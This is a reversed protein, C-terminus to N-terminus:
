PRLLEATDRAAKKVDPMDFYKDFLNLFLDYAVGDIDMGYPNTYHPKMQQVADYLGAVQDGENANPDFLDPYMDSLIKWAQDLSMGDSSVLNVSGFLKSRFNGYSGMLYAAEGRQVDTLEIRTKKLMTRADTYSDYLEKDLAQSQNIIEKAMGVGMKTIDDWSPKEADAIYDLLTRLNEKLTDMKYASSYEKLIGRALQDIMADSAHFGKILKFQSALHDVAKQLQENDRQVREVDADSIDDLSFSERAETNERKVSQDPQAINNMSSTRLFQFKPNTGYSNMIAETVDKIKTVDKLLLGNKIRKINIVADYYRRGIKFTTDFYEWNLVDPHIHGDEGDKETRYNRGADLLNDLEGAARM